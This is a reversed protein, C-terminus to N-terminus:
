PSCQQCALPSCLPTRRAVGSVLQCLACLCDPEATICTPVLLRSARVSAVYMAHAACLGLKKRVLILRSTVVTEGVTAGGALIPRPQKLRGSADSRNQGM